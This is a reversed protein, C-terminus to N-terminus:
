YNVKTGLDKSVQSGDIMNSHKVPFTYYLWVTHGSQPMSGDQGTDSLGPTMSRLGADRYVIHNAKVGYVITGSLNINCKLKTSVVYSGEINVYIKIKFVLNDRFTLHKNHIKFNATYFTCQKTYFKCYLGHITNFM